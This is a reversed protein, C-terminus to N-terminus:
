YIEQISGAKYQKLNEDNFKEADITTDVEFGNEVGLKEIAIIGNAISEHHYGVTKSFVLIKPKPKALVPSVSFFFLVMLNLLISISYFSNNKTKNKM